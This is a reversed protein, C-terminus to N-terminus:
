YLIINEWISEFLHLASLWSIFPFMFIIGHSYSSQSQGIWHIRNSRWWMDCAGCEFNESLKRNCHVIWMVFMMRKACFLHSIKFENTIWLLKTQRVFIENNGTRNWREGVVSSYCIKKEAAGRIISTITKSSTKWEHRHLEFDFCSFLAFYFMKYFFCGTCISLFM